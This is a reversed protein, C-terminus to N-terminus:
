FILYNEVQESWGYDARMVLEGITCHLLFRNRKAHYGPLMTHAIM